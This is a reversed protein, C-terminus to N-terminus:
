ERMRNSWWEREREEHTKRVTKMERHMCTERERDIYRETLKARKNTYM